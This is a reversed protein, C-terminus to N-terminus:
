IEDALPEKSYDPVKMNGVVYRERIQKLRVRSRERQEPTAPKDKPSEIQNPNNKQVLIISQIFAPNIVLDKLKVFRADGADLLVKVEEGDLIFSKKGVTVEWKELVQQM